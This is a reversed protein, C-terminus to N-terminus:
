RYPSLFIATIFLGPYGALGAQQGQLEGQWVLQWTVSEVLLVTRTYNNSQGKSIESYNFDKSPQRPPTTIWLSGTCGAEIKGEHKEM